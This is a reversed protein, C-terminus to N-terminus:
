FSTFVQSSLIWFNLYSKTEALQLFSVTWLCPPEHDTSIPCFKKRCITWLGDRLHTSVLFYENKWKEFELKEYYTIEINFVNVPCSLCWMGVISISKKYIRNNVVLNPQYESHNCKYLIRLQNRWMIKIDDIQSNMWAYILQNTKNWFKRTFYPGTTCHERPSKLRWQLVPGLIRLSIIDTIDESKVWRLWKINISFYRPSCM